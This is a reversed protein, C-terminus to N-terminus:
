HVEVIRTDVAGGARGEPTRRSPEDQTDPVLPLLEAILRKVSGEPGFLDLRFGDVGCLVASWWRRGYEYELRQLDELRMAQVRRGPKSTLVILWNPTLVVETRSRGFGRRLVYLEEGKGGLRSVSAGALEAELLNLVIWPPGYRGLTRIEALDWGRLLALGRLLTRVARQITCALVSLIFLCCLNQYPNSAVPLNTLLFWAPMFALLGHVTLWFAATFVDSWGESELWDRITRQKV